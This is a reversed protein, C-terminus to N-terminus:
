TGEELRQIIEALQEISDLHDFAHLVRTLVLKSNEHVLDDRFGPLWELDQLIAVPFESFGALNRMLEGHDHFRLNRSSSFVAALDLM